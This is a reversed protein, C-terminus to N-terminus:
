LLFHEKYSVEAFSNNSPLSRSYYSTILKQKVWKPLPMIGSHLASSTAAWASDPPQTPMETQAIVNEFDSHAEAPWRLKVKAVLDQNENVYSVIHSRLDSVPLSRNAVRWLQKLALHDNTESASVLLGNLEQRSQQNDCTRVLQPLAGILEKPEIKPGVKPSDLYEILFSVADRFVHGPNTLVGEQLLQLVITRGDSRWGDIIDDDLARARSLLDAKENARRLGALFLAVERWFSRRVM